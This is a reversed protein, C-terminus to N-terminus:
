APEESDSEAPAEESEDEAVSKSGVAESNGTHYVEKRSDPFLALYKRFTNLLKFSLVVGFGDTLLGVAKPNEKGEGSYFNNPRLLLSLNLSAAGGVSGTPACTPRCDSSRSISRKHERPNWWVISPWSFLFDTVACFRLVRFFKM